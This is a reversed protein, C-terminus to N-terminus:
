GVVFVIIFLDADITPRSFLGASAYFFVQRQFLAKLSEAWSHQAQLSKIDM